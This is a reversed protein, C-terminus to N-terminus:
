QAASEEEPGFMEIYQYIQEQIEKPYESAIVLLQGIKGNIENTTKAPTALWKIFKPNTVVYKAIVNPFVARGVINGVLGAAGSIMSRTQGTLAGVGISSVDYGLGAMFELVQTSQTTNSFNKLRASEAINKIVGTLEDLSSRLESGEAGFFADKAEKSISQYNTLFTNISFEADVENGFNKYGMKRLVTASVDGWEDNSFENKLRALITGGDKRENLLYRYAREPADFKLLKDFLDQNESKWTAQFKMASNFEDLADSGVRGVGVKLDATMARYLESYLPRKLSDMDYARNSERFFSRQERFIAYPLEGGYIKADSIINDIEQIAWNMKPGRSEPAAAVKAALENRLTMLNDIAFPTDEGITGRLSSEMKDVAKSYKESASKVASQIEIGAQQQSRAVGIKSALNKVASETEEVVKIIQNKMTTKATPAAELATEIIGAGRGGTVAGATPTIGQRIMADYVAESRKQVGGGFVRKAANWVPPLAYRGIGEGVFAFGGTIAADSIKATTTRSDEVGLIKQAFYDYATDAAITGAAAAAMAGPGSPAAIIAGGIGGVIQAAERGLDFVDTTTFGSGFLGGKTEDFLILTGNNPDTYVFNDDGHPMADPAFERLASLKDQETRASNVRFRVNGPAGTYKDILSDFQPSQRFNNLADNIKEEGWEMPATLIVGAYEIERFQQQKQPSEVQTMEPPPPQQGQQVPTVM